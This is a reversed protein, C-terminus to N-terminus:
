NHAHHPTTTRTKQPLFPILVPPRMQRDLFDLHHLELQQAAAALHRHNHCATTLGAQESAEALTVHAFRLQGAAISADRHILLSTEGETIRKAAKALISTRTAEIRPIDSVDILAISDM